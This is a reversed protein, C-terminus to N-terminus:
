PTRVPLGGPGPQGEESAQQGSLDLGAELLWTRITPHEAEYTDWVTRAWEFAAERADQPTGTRPVHAWTLGGPGSRALRRFYPRRVMRRHLETGLAPDTGHELFLCLTMLHLGVSQVQQPLGGDGPHQAAYADVVVQHFRMRDASSYDAALLAGFGEWCAASNTMYRHVPGDLHPFAGGCGPCLSSVSRLYHRPLGTSPRPITASDVIEPRRERPMFRM